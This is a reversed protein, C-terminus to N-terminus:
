VRPPAIPPIVIRGLRRQERDAAIRSLNDMAETPFVYGLYEHPLGQHGLSEVDGQFKALYAIGPSVDARQHDTHFLEYPHSHAHNVTSFYIHIHDHHREAFHHDLSPGLSPLLLILIAFISTLHLTLNKARTIGLSVRHRGDLAWEPHSRM